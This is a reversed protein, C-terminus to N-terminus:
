CHGVYIIEPKILNCNFESFDFHTQECHNTMKGILHHPIESVLFRLNIKIGIELSKFFLHLVINASVMGDDRINISGCANNFEDLNLSHIKKIVNSLKEIGCEKYLQIKKIPSIKDRHIGTKDEYSALVFSILSFNKISSWIKNLVYSSFGRGIDNFFIRKLTEYNINIESLSKEYFDKDNKDDDYNFLVAMTISQCNNEPSYIDNLSISLKNVPRSNNDHDNIVHNIPNMHISSSDESVEIMESKCESSETMQSKIESDAISLNDVYYISEDDIEKGTVPNIKKVLSSM